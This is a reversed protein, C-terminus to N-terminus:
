QEGPRDSEDELAYANGALFHLLTDPRHVFEAVDFHLHDPVLSNGNKAVLYRWLDGNHDDIGLADDKELDTVCKKFDDFSGFGPQGTDWSWQMLALVQAVDRLLVTLSHTGRVPLTPKGRAELLKNGLRVISKVYLEAAHRYLFALPLVDLDNRTEPLFHEKFLLQAARHFADATARWLDAPETGVDLSANTNSFHTVYVSSNPNQRVKNM